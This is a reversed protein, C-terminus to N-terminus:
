KDIENKLLDILTDLKANLKTVQERNSRAIQQAEIAQQVSASTLQVGGDFRDGGFAFVAIFLALISVGTGVVTTILTSTQPIHNLKSLIEAFRADNQARVADVKADIYNIDMGNGGNDGGYTANVERDAELKQDASLIAFREPDADELKIIKGPDDM